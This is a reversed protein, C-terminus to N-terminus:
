RAAPRSAEIWRLTTAPPRGASRAQAAQNREYFTPPEYVGGKALFRREKALALLIAAGYVPAAVRARLGFTQVVQRLTEALKAQLAPNHPFSRAGAWLAGAHVTPLGECERRIRRAVRASSHQAHRRWAQLRTQAMRLVSPGNEEFDRRFAELLWHEQEGPAFHWHRFNLAGQGHIDADEYSGPALLRGQAEMQDWFPTGPGPTYLMFQHFDAAHAVARDIVADMIETRHDELGIISSGLVAIGQARLERVLALTDVGSLKDYSAGEGELGLWAWSLGLRLLEDMSFGRLARASAFVYLSWAKDHREMLELLRRARRQHLLFNEDMVFFSWAGLERELGEMVEFLEDGSRYFDLHHGKGGFFASTCCFNCGVPCGVSPLLTAAVDGPGEPLRFGLTRSEFGSQIVPHRIPREPAEGLYERLWRVGDGRAVYDAGTREQVGPLAAIHGGLVVKAAPRHTHVLRVMEEVKRVNPIISGIGVLDYPTRRLEEVFREQSPFDLVTCPADVNAQLLSLGWSRHFMRLSFPGQLRTVQNHYLEMPNIARSGFADDRAYPGFVSSLLIEPPTPSPDSMPEM